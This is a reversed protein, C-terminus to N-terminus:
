DLVAYGIGAGDVGIGFFPVALAEDMTLDELTERADVTNDVAVRFVHQRINNASHGKPRNIMHSSEQTLASQM